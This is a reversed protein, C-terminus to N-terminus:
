QEVAAEYNACRGDSTCMRVWLRETAEPLRFTVSEGEVEGDLAIRETATEARIEFIPDDRFAVTMTMEGNASSSLTPLQEKFTDADYGLCSWSTYPVDVPRLGEIVITEPPYKGLMEHCDPDGGPVSESDACSALALALAVMVAM